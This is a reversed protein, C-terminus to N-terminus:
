MYAKQKTPTFDNTLIVKKPKLVTYYSVGLLITMQKTM